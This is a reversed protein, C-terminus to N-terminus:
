GRRKHTSTKKFWGNTVVGKFFNQLEYEIVDLLDYRVSGNIKYYSIGRNNTRMNELTRQSKRWRVALESTTLFQREIVPDIDDNVSPNMPGGFYKSVDM